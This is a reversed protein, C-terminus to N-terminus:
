SKCQNLQPILVIIRNPEPEDLNPYIPIFGREKEKNEQEKIFGDDSSQRINRWFSLKKRKAV